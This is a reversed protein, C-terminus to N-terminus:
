TRPSINAGRAEAPLYSAAKDELDWVVQYAEYGFRNALNSNPNKGFTWGGKGYDFAMPYFRHSKRLVQGDLEYQFAKFSGDKKTLVKGTIINQMQRQGKEQNKFFRLGQAM